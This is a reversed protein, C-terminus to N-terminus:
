SIANTLLRVKIAQVARANRENVQARKEPSVKAAWERFGPLARYRHVAPALCDPLTALWDDASDSLSLVASFYSGIYVLEDNISAREALYEEMRPELSEHLPKPPKGPQQMLSAGPVDKELPYLTGKYGFCPDSYGLLRSNAIVIDEFRQQNTEWFKGYLFALLARKAVIKEFGQEVGGPFTFPPDPFVGLRRTQIPKYISVPAMLCPRRHLHRSRECANDRRLAHSRSHLREPVARRRRSRHLRAQLHQGPEQQGHLRLGGPSRDLPLRHLRGERLGGSARFERSRRASATPDDPMFVVHMDNLTYNFGPEGYEEAKVMKTILVEQDTKVRCSDTAIYRNVVAYDGVALRDRGNLAESLARNYAIVRKNTWALFKADGPRTAPDQFDDFLRQDFDERSLHRIHKGDPAVSFWPGGDIVNRFQAGLLTIPHLDAVTGDPNKQRVIETLRVTEYGASFVPASVSKFDVLQYPDGIWIVKSRHIRMSTHSLLEYNAFSGEDILVIANDIMPRRSDVVLETEKTRYDTQVQLGLLSHITQTRAGSLTQLAEAAKNTTATLHVDMSEIAEHEDPGTNLVKLMARVKPIHELLHRVLTTKGTGSFGEIVLTSKNPDLLFATITDLAAEQSPTLQFAPKQVPEQAAGSAPSPSTTAVEDPVANM